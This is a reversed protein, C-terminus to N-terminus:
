QMGYVIALMEREINSYRSQCKTLTKSGFAVPRNDQVLAVGNGRQSADVELTLAAAPNYYLCADVTVTTKLDDFCKQYDTDWTWQSDSKLLGRLNHAKNAFKPIYPSLYNM